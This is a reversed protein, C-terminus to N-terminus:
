CIWYSEDRTVWLVITCTNPAADLDSLEMSSTCVTVTLLAATDCSTYSSCYPPKELLPFTHSFGWLMEREGESHCCLADMRKKRGTVLSKDGGWRRWVLPIKNPQELDTKASNQVSVSTYGWRLLLNNFVTQTKADHPSSIDTLIIFFYLMISALPGLLACKNCLYHHLRLVSVWKFRIQLNNNKTTQQQWRSIIIWLPSLLTDDEIQQPILTIHSSICMNIVLFLSALPGFM